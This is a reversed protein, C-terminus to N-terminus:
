ILQKSKMDCPNGHVYGWRYKNASGKSQNKYEFSALMHKENVFLEVTM